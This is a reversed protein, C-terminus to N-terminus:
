RRQDKTIFVHKFTIKEYKQEVVKINKDEM